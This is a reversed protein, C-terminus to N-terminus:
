GGTVLSYCGQSLIHDAVDVVLHTVPVLRRVSENTRLSRPRKIPFGM